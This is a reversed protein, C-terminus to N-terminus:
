SLKKGARQFFRRIGKHAKEQEKVEKKVETAIEEAKESVTEKMEGLNGLLVQAKERLAKRWEEGEEKGLILALAAGIVGGLVLGALFNNDKKQSDQDM